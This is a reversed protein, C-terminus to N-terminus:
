ETEEKTIYPNILSLEKKIRKRRNAQKKDAVEQQNYNKFMISAINM